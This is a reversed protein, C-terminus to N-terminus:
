KILGGVTFLSHADDETHPAERIRHAHPAPVSGVLGVLGVGGALNASGVWGVLGVLGAIELFVV